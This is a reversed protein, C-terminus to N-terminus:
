HEVQRVVRPSMGALLEYAITGACRAVDAICPSDGWLVVRDGLRPAALDTVDISVMDMSVRGVVSALQGNVLVPTATAVHWPYGDAYGAAAVAIVSDRRATWDGGYGVRYGRSLRRIAMIRTEFSMAPQLRLRQSTEDPLPSVGYLMLGPRVWNEGGYDLVPSRRLTEPCRLIAASNAISVDGPWQGIAQAFCEIQRSTSPDTIDDACALHTMVRLTGSRRSLRAVAPGVQRPDIGLRGMGTDIKLWVGLPGLGSDHDIISIQEPCHVVVDLDHRVCLRAEESSIFGGLVVVKRTIGAARLQLAEDLRAVAFADAETLINAVSALGHGYANAKIVALVRCGPALERVRRLNHRLAAARVVAVAAPTV